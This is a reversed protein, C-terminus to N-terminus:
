LNKFVGEGFSNYNSNELIKKVEAINENQLRVLNPNQLIEIIKEVFIEPNNKPQVFEPIADRNLIINVLHM